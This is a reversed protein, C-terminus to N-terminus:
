NWCDDRVQILGNEVRLLNEIGTLTGSISSPCGGQYHV